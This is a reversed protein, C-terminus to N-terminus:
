LSTALAHLRYGESSRQVRTQLVHVEAQQKGGEGLALDDLEEGGQQHLPPDDETGVRETQGGPAGM